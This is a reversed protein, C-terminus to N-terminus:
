WERWRDAADPSNKFGSAFVIEDFEECLDERAITEIFHDHQDDLNNLSEICGRLATVVRRRDPKPGLAIISDITQRFIRRTEALAADPVFGKWSSFRRKKRLAELTLGELHARYDIAAQARAAVKARDREADETDVAARDHDWRWQLMRQFPFSGWAGHVNWEMVSEAPTPRITGLPRFTDPPADTVWLIEARGQFSHHTLILPLALGREHVDPPPTDGIWASAAVLISPAGRRTTEEDSARRLVRCVGFRGDALPMVFADGPAPLEAPPTPRKKAM